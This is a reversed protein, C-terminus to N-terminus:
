RKEFKQKLWELAARQEDPHARRLLALIQSVNPRAPSVNSAGENCISCMARLNDLDAKGGHSEDIIHGVHLRAPRGNEHIEGAGVGCSKCTYGNREFVMARLRKSISKGLIPRRHLDALVYQGPKLDSRDHHTQINYGYKSRLERVRRSWSDATGGITERLTANDFVKGVNAVFFAEARRLTGPERPM